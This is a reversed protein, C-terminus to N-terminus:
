RIRLDEILKNFHQHSRQVLSTSEEPGFWHAGVGRASANKSFDRDEEVMRRFSEVLMEFAEPEAEAFRRHVAFFRYVAGSVAHHSEQGLAESLTPVEPWARLRRPSFVALPKIEDGLKRVATMSGATLDAEGRALGKRAKGGSGYIMETMELGLNALLASTLLPGGGTRGGIGLRYTNPAERVAAIM